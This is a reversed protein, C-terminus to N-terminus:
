EGEGRNDFADIDDDWNGNLLKRQVIREQMALGLAIICSLVKKNTPMQVGAIIFNSLGYVFDNDSVINNAKNMKEEASLLLTYGSHETTM